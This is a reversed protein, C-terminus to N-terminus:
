CLRTTVAVLTKSALLRHWWSPYYDWMLHGSTAGLRRAFRLTPGDHVKLDISDGRVPQWLPGSWDVAGTRYWASTAPDSVRVPLLEVHQPLHRGEIPGPEQITLCLRTSDVTANADFASAWDGQAPLVFGLVAILAALTTTVALLRM